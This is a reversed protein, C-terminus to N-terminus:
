ESAGGRKAKAKEVYAIAKGLQAHLRKAAPLRLWEGDFFDIMRDSKLNVSIGPTQDGDGQSYTSAMVNGFQKDKM